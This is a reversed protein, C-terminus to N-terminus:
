PPRHRSRTFVDIRRARHRAGRLRLQLRQGGEAEGM